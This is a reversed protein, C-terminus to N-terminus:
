LTRVPGLYRDLWALIERKVAQNLPAHGGEVLFHRKDKDPTGLVNFLPAQSTQTPFWFDDRGNVMLIPIRVRPAFHYADVEAPWGREWCGGFLLVGLRFRQTVALLRPGEAAGMSLGYYALKERDIDRRAELYDLTRGLDKAWQVAMERWLNPQSRYAQFSGGLTREYTGKYTPYVLARGSRVIFDFGGTESPRRSRIDLRQAGPFLVVTQYPPAATNPLYVDAAVREDGYAAQFSVQEFRWDPNDDTTRLSPKLDTSDYQHIARYIQFIPDAAPKDGRRDRVVLQVPGTLEKDIPSAYKVCRFGNGASRDMPARSEAGYFSCSQDNWAGGLIYRKHGDPYWCWERVNGAM